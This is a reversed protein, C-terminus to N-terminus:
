FIPYKHVKLVPFVIRSDKAKLAEILAFLEFKVLKDTALLSKIEAVISTDEEILELGIHETKGELLFYINM